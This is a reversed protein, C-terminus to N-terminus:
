KGRMKIFIEKYEYFVLIIIVLIFLEQLRKCFFNLKKLFCKVSTPFPQM